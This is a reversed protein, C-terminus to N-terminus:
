QVLLEYIETRNLQQQEHIRQFPGLYKVSLVIHHLRLVYAHITHIACVSFSHHVACIRQPQCCEIRQTSVILPLTVEFFGNESGLLLSFHGLLYAKM